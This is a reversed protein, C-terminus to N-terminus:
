NLRELTLLFPMPADGFDYFANKGTESQKWLHTVDDTSPVPRIDWRAPKGDTGAFATVEVVGSIKGIDQEFNVFFYHRQTTCIATWLRVPTPQDVPMTLFNVGSLPGFVASNNYTRFRFFDVPEDPLDPDYGATDPLWGAQSNSLAPYIVRVTRGSHHEIKFFLEGAAGTFYVEVSRTKDTVYSGGEDNLLKDVYFDRGTADADTLSRFTARLPVDPPTKGGGKQGQLVVSLGLVLVASMLGAVLRARKM